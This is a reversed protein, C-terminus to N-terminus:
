GDQVGLFKDLVHRPVLLAKGAKVSALQGTRVLEYVLDTGLGLMTAVETVRYALRPTGEASEMCGM